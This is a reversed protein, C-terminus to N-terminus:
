LAPHAGLVACPAGGRGGSLPDAGDAPGVLELPGVERRPAVAPDDYVEEGRFLYTCYECM